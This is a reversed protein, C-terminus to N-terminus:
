KFLASTAPPGAEYALLTAAVRPLAAVDAAAGGPAGGGLGRPFMWGRMFACFDAPEGRLMAQWCPRPM